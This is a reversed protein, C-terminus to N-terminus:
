DVFGLSFNKIEEYIIKFENFNDFIKRLLNANYIRVLNSCFRTRPTIEGSMVYMIDEPLQIYGKYLSMFHEFDRINDIISKIQGWNNVSIRLNLLFTNISICFVVDLNNSEITLFERNHLYLLEDKSLPYKNEIYEFLNYLFLFNNHLKV